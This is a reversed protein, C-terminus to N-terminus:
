KRQYIVFLSMQKSIAMDANHLNKSTEGISNTKSLSYINKENLDCISLIDM